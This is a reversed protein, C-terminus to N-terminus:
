RNGCEDPCKGGDGFIGSGGGDGPMDDKLGQPTRHMDNGKKDMGVLLLRPEGKEHGHYIRIGQCDDNALIKLLIEKSFAEAYIPNPQKECTKRYADVWNRAETFSMERGPKAYPFQSKM